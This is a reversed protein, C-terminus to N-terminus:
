KLGPSCGRLHLRLAPLQNPPFDLSLARHRSLARPAGVQSYHARAFPNPSHSGQVAVDSLPIRRQPVPLGLGSVAQQPHEKSSGRLEVNSPGRSLQAAPAPPARLHLGLAPDCLARQPLSKRLDSCGLEQRGPARLRRRVEPGEWSGQCAGPSSSDAPAGAGAGPCAKAM